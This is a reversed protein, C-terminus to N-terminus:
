MVFVKRVDDEPFEEGSRPDRVVGRGGDEEGRLGINENWIRLSRRGYVRGNPLVVPENECESSSLTPALTDVLTSHIHHAFPVNEALGAMEPSCIPCNTSTNTGASACSPTKLASLGASLAVHLLPPNPLAYLAHHAKVFLDALTDWRADSYLDAYPQVTTSPPYALLAAAQQIRPMHTAAHPTLHKRYYAIAELKKDARVLEIFEQLRLEFELDSGIGNKVLVKRNEGCWGLAEGVGREARLSREVGRAKVFVEVDVLEEIGRNQALSAASSTLGQRLMYDIILRDLRTQNWRDYTPSTTTTMTSLESLYSLRSKTSTLITQEEIQLKGLKRKLGQMRGIMGEIGKLANEVGGEKGVEKEVVAISKTLNTTERDIAVRSARFVSEHLAHPLKLLPQELILHNDPNFKESSM